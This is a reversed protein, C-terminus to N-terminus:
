KANNVENLAQQALNPLYKDCHGCLNFGADGNAISELAEVLKKNKAQEALLLESPYHKHVFHIIDNMEGDLLTINHENAFFDFMDQKFIDM